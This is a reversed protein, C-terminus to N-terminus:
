VNSRIGLRYLKRRRRDFTKSRHRAQPDIYQHPLRGYRCWPHRARGCLRWCQHFHPAGKLLREEVQVVDPGEFRAHGEMVTLGEMGRLWKEINVRANTSVTDARDKVRQMNIKIPTEVAIGYEECRRALHAADASAVLTKTPMCGTNVCTGGFLKREILAVKMGAATMRGALSPGAQGTGIIIADFLDM